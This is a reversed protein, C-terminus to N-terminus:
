CVFLTYVKTDLRYNRFVTIEKSMSTMALRVLTFKYVRIM